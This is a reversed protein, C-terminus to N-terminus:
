DESIKARKLSSVACLTQLSEEFVMMDMEKEKLAKERAEIDQLRQALSKPNTECKIISFLYKPTKYFIGDSNLPGFSIEVNSTIYVPENQKMRNKQIYTEKDCVLTASWKEATVQELLLHERAINSDHWSIPILPVSHYTTYPNHCASWTGVVAKDELLFEGVHLSSVQGIFVLRAM